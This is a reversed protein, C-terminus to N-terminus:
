LVYSLLYYSGEGTSERIQKAIMCFIIAKFFNVDLRKFLIFFFVIGMSAHAYHQM